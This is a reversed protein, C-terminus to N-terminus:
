VLQEVFELNVENEKLPKYNERIADPYLIISIGPQKCWNDNVLESFHIYGTVHCRQENSSWELIRDFRDHPVQLLGKFSICM